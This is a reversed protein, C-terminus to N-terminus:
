VYGRKGARCGEKEGERGSGGEERGEEIIGYIQGDSDMWEGM